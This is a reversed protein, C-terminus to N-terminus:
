IKKKILATLLPVFIDLFNRFNPNHDLMVKILALTKITKEMM